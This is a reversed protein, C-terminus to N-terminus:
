TVEGPVPPRRKDPPLRFKATQRSLAVLQGSSDWFEGDEELLEVMDALVAIRIQREHRVPPRRPQLRVM